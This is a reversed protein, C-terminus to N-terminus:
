CSLLIHLLIANAVNLALSELLYREAPHDKYMCLLPKRPIAGDFQCMEEDLRTAQNIVLKLM